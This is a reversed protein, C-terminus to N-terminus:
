NSDSEKIEAPREKLSRSWVRISDAIIVLALLIMIFTLVINLTMHQPVYINRINMIGAVVTTVAVYIFPILTVWIYRAKGSRIILTTGLALAIAALLQNAVGFMPWISSITGEYLLLGWAFSVVFSTGVIGPLWQMDTVKPWFHGATETLIYRAVRTGADITTLIFLAEFMIAFHYWYKLLGAMGPIKYFVSAMGVALSVAGGTRHMLQEGVLQEFLPLHVVQLGLSKWGELTANMAFYDNVDLATTALLAILAVFSETIMAGYGIFPIDRERDVMKPTTGSGILSHFGSIAGCAITICVYPWVPGPIVPGGGHIYKTLAPMSLEPNVLFLGLALLGITGIKMYTSIYDRPALLLWVPLAAALFGYCPLMIKLANENYTFLYAWSSHAVAPGTIVALFLLVIGIVSGEGIKGPRWRFMWCGVLVAIPITMFVTFFAWPSGKLANVVAIALGALSVVIIFLTAVAASVGTVPGTLSGAIKYLAQGRHRVSAFLIIMDHVAGAFVGGLLIWIAGPLYGYQAALVPGILPGAGAIAAFHHGFLVWRNMPIYDRGDKLEHAPTVKTDDIVLVKAAIFAAYYRYGLAFLCLAIVLIPVVHM